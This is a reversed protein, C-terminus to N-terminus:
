AANVARRLEQEARLWDDLDHGDDRGRQEYLEYARVAIDAPSVRPQARRDPKRRLRPRELEVRSPRQYRHGDKAVPHTPTFPSAM